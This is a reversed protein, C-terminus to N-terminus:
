TRIVLVPCRARDLTREASNGFFPPFRALTKWIGGLERGGVVILGVELEEGLRVAERDLRGEKYYSGAVSGRLKEVLGVQEDLAVLARLKWRELLEEVRDKTALAPYPPGIELSVSRMVYLESETDVALEAAAETAAQTGPSNDTALLIKTPFM